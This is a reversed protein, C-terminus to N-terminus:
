DDIGIFAMAKNFKLEVDNSLEVKYGESENTIKVVKTHSYNKTVYKNIIQPIVSLPLANKKGNVEKWMGNDRFDIEVGNELHVTYETSFIEKDVTASIVNVTKFHKAVYEKAVRPLNKFDIPQDDAKAAGIIAISAIILLLKKM